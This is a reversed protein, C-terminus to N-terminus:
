QLRLRGPELLGVAEAERTDPVVPAPWWPWSIKLFKETSVPDKWIAWAPRANRPEFSGGAEVEETKELHSDWQWPCFSGSM